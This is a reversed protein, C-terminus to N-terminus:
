ILGKEREISKATRETLSIAATYRTGGESLNLRATGHVANTKWYWVSNSSMEIAVGYDPYFFIGEKVVGEEYVFGLAWESRDDDCHGVAMYNKSCFLAGIIENDGLSVAKKFDEYSQTIWPMDRKANDYLWQALTDGNSDFIKKAEPNLKSNKNYVYSGSHSGLFEKRKGHGVLTGEGAHAKGRKIKPHAEVTAKTKSGYYNAVKNSTVQRVVGGVISDGCMFIVSENRPIVLLDSPNIDDNPLSTLASASASASIFKRIYKQGTKQHLEVNVIFVRKKKKIENLESIKVKIRDNWDNLLTEYSPQRKRNNLFRTFTSL